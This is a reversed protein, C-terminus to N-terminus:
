PSFAVPVPAFSMTVRTEEGARVKIPQEAVLRQGNRVIEARLRYSYSQNPELAPTV